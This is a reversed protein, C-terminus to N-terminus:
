QVVIKGKMVPHLTCYYDATQKIAITFSTKPTLRSSSWAKSNEETVNHDVIDKNIFTVSDGKKITLEAPNFTMQSIDVTYTRPKGADEYVGTKESEPSGNSCGLQVVAFLCTLWRVCSYARM